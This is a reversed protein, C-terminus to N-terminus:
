DVDVLALEDRDHARRPRALRRHQVDEAAQVRRRAAAVHQVSKLDGRPRPLLQRDDAVLLEAEDELVEVQQRPRAGNLLHLQGVCTSFRKKRRASEEESLARNISSYLDVAEFNELNRDIIALSAKSAFDLQNEIILQRALKLVYEEYRSYEPNSLNDSLVTELLESNQLEFAEDIKAMGLDYDEGSLPLCFFLAAILILVSKSLQKLTSFQRKM